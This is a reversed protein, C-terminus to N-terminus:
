AVPDGSGDSVRPADAVVRGRRLGSRLIAADLIPFVATTAGIGFALSLVAASSVIPTAKLARWADRFDAM